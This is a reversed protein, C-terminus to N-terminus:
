QQQIQEAQVATEEPIAKKKGRLSTITVILIGLIIYLYYTFFRWIITGWFLIGESLSKFIIYFAGEAVGMNGPTPIFTIAAYVFFSLTIIDLLVANGVGCASLVFYPIAANAIHAIASVFFVVIFCIKSKAMFKLNTRYDNFYKEATANAKEVNKVIRIKNLLKISGHVISVTMKPFVTFLLLLSPIAAYCVLGVIAAVKMAADTVDLASARVVFFVIALLVFAAQNALFGTVPLAGAVGGSLGNTKLYYMQFPQGGSGSPTIYDYYKGLVAVEFAEKPKHQKTCSHIMVHYKVTECVIVTLFAALCFLIFYWNEGLLRVVESFPKSQNETNSFEIIAMIVIAVVNLGIFALPLWKKKKKPKLQDEM